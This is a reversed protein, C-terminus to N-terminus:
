KTINFSLGLSISMGSNHSVQGDTSTELNALGMMYNFETYASIYDNIKINIGPTIFVGFDMKNISESKLIDFNENNITQNAKLLYAFYGSVCLYPKIREPKNYVYGVGIKVDAYQFNWAYNSNDYVLTAGAKRMGLGARFMLGSEASYRYGVSYANTYIPNYVKDRTGQSDEFKFNSMIQSGDITLSSQAFFENRCAFASLLFLCIKFKSNM